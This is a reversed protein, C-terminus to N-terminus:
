QIKASQKNPKKKPKKKPKKRKPKKKRKKKPKKAKPAGEPVKAGTKGRGLHYLHHDTYELLLARLAPADSHTDYVNVREAPDAALDYLEYYNADIRYILKLDGLRVAVQHGDYNSDAFVETYVPEVKAPTGTLVEHARSRGLYRKPIRVGLLELLTPAVEMHGIPVELVRPEIAPVHLVLPVHTMEEYLTRGHFRHGHDGFEDGHDATLVFLTRDWLGRERLGDVLRGIQADTYRVIAEYRARDSGDEAPYDPVEFYPDHPDYYHGWVFFRDRKPKLKGERWADVHRLLGDTMHESGPKAGHVTFRSTDYNATQTGQRLGRVFFVTVNAFLATHWGADRLAETMMVERGVPTQDRGMELRSPPKSLLLAPISWYTAAGHAYANRYDVAEAALAKLRPMHADVVDARLADITLLVVNWDRKAQPTPRKPAKIPDTKLDLDAGTCNQDRGDGPPDYVGPRVKPDADDCDGGAFRSSVGDGDGDGIRGLRSAVRGALVTDRDLALLRSQSDGLAASSWALGGFYAVVLPMSAIAASRRLELREVGWVVCVLVVGAFLALRAPRLDVTHLEPLVVTALLNGLLLFVAIWMAAGFLTRPDIRDPLRASIWTVVRTVAGVAPGAVALCAGVVMVATLGAALGQYTKRRFSSVFVVTAKQVVLVVVAAAVFGVLAWAVRRAPELPPREARGWRWGARTADVALVVAAGGLWLPFGLLGCVAWAFAAVQGFSGLATAGVLLTRLVEFIVVVGAALAPAFIYRAILRM